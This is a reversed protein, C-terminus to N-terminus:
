VGCWPKATRTKFFSTAASEQRCPVPPVFGSGVLEFVTGNHSAGWSSMTGFLDGKDDAILTTEPDQGTVIPNTFSILVRPTPEYGTPAKIIEFLETQTSGFLDGSGDITLSNSSSITEGRPFTALTTPSTAYSGDANKVIEFVKVIAATTPGTGQVSVGFLDGNGDAVLDSVSTSPGFSALTTPNTAYGSATTATKQLEFVIANGGETRGFLDGRSDAILNGGPHAGDVGNFNILTTPSSAYSGDANKKIEFVTGLASAGAPGIETTGFLDGNSDVFLSGAPEVGGTGFSVLTQSSPAYGGASKAIEFVTGLGSTGGQSTTGFLNGNADAVLGELDISSPLTALDNPQSGPAKPRPRITRSHCPATMTRKNRSQAASSAAAARASSASSRATARLSIADSSSGFSFLAV